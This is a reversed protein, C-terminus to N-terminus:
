DSGQGQELLAVPTGTTRSPNMQNRLRQTGTQMKDFAESMANSDMSEPAKQPIKLSSEPIGAMMLNIIGQKVEPSSTDKGQREMENVFERIQVGRQDHGMLTGIGSFDEDLSCPPTSEQANQKLKHIDQMLSVRELQMRIGSLSMSGTADGDPRESQFESRIAELMADFKLKLEAAWDKLKDCPRIHCSGGIQGKKWECLAEECSEEYFKIRLASSSPTNVSCSSCPECAHAGECKGGYFGWPGVDRGPLFKCGSAKGCNDRARKYEDKSQDKTTSCLGCDDQVTAVDFDPKECDGPAGTMSSNPVAHGLEAEQEHLTKRIFDSHGCDQEVFSSSEFKSSRNLKTAMSRMGDQMQFLKNFVNKFQGEMEHIENANADADEANRSGEVISDIMGVRM